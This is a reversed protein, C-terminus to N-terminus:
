VADPCRAVQLDRLLPAELRRADGDDDHREDVAVEVRPVVGEDHGAADALRRVAVLLTDLDMEAVPREM